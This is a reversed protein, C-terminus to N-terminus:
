CDGGKIIINETVVWIRNCYSENKRIAKELNKKVNNRQATKNKIVKSMLFDVATDISNFTRVKANPENRVTMTITINKKPIPTPENKKRKEERERMEEAWPNEVPMASTAIALAVERLMDADELANHNQVVPKSRFYSVVKKLSIAGTRFFRCVVKSYDIFSAGLYYAFDQAEKNEMYKATHEVFKEDGDGYTFFFTENGDNQERIFDRLELFVSDATPANNVMDQTIGTLETIFKNVKGGNIPKVLSYFSHGNSAVCGISIIRNSFQTAEFDLYFNM